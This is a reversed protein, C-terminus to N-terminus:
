DRKPKFRIMCGVPLTETVAPSKGQLADQVATEVYKQEVEDANPSDDFAGMYVIKRERDLVFCEPTRLAGFQRPVQQSKDFLYPFNFGKDKARQTMKELSDQPVLNCNIAVLAVNGDPSYKDHFAVLRDEYDVAYPCSNCTFVVVLVKAKKFDALSHQEGDTGPLDQFAPVQDGIGLTPNHKGRALVSQDSWCCGVGVLLMLLAARM